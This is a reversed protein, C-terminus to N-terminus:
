EGEKALKDPEALHKDLWHIMESYLHFLSEKAQYNHEEYPLKVYRVTAGLGQLAQFYRESQLPFTGSNNDEEGHVLLLPVKMEDASHFPSIADYIKPAEWYTREESQFGFPTLTRNYAGSLAIGAKFLHTHTVLNAAMSAGYSHGGIAVRATDVVGLRYGEAIMAEANAIIQTLYSDNPPFGLEGVIPMTTLVVAYGQTVLSIPPLPLLYNFQYPSGVRQGADDASQYDVPYAWVFTPLRGDEKKYDSPLYVFATLEVSDARTFRIEQRQVDKFQPYPHEYFTLQQDSGEGLNRLFYNPPEQLGECRTLLIRENANLVMHVVEYYPSESQWLREKKGSAIDFLDAFPRNGEPSAGEGLLYLKNDDTVVLAERGYENRHVAPEGPNAYHDNLSYSFLKKTEGSDAPNILYSSYRRDNWWRENVLAISDNGWTVSYFRDVCQHLLQPPQTFPAEWTYLADRVNAQNKPNGGDKAEVWYITAPHDSRWDHRRAVPSAADRSPVINELLPLDAVTRIKRGRRSFVDVRRPFRDYRVVYSYPRHITEIQIYNGDPSPSSYYVVEPSGIKTQKGRLNTVVVQSSAYYDFLAVDHENELLDQYMRSPKEEGGNEQVIPGKVEENAAPAEDRPPIVRCLLEDNSLWEFPDDFVGNLVANKIPKAKGSSADAYWLEIKDAHHVCFALKTNDPSWAPDSLQTDEPLGTIDVVKEERLYQITMTGTFGDQRRGNNSPNIELGAVGVTPKALDTVSSLMEYDILLLKEGNADAKVFPPSPANLMEQIASPPLQYSSSDQAFLARSIFILLYVPAIHQFIIRKTNM